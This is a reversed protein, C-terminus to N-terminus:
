GNPSGGIRDLVRVLSVNTAIKCSAVSPFLNFSRLLTVQFKSVKFTDL